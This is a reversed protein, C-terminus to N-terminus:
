RGVSARREIPGGVPPSHPPPSGPPPSGPSPSSPSPSGPPSSGPPTSGPPTSGPPRTGPLGGPGAGRGALRGVAPAAGARGALSAAAIPAAAVAAVGAAMTVGSVVVQGPNLSPQGSMLGAALNPTVWLLIPVLLAVVLHSLLEPWELQGQLGDGMDRLFAEVLTLVFLTTMMKVSLSVVIALAREAIFATPRLVAFPLLVLVLSTLLHFEVTTMFVRIGGIVFGVVIALGTFALMVGIALAKAREGLEWPWPSGANTVSMLIDGFVSFGHGILVSPSLYAQVRAPDGSGAIVGLAAASAHIAGVLADFDRIIWVFVAITAAKRILDAITEQRGFAYLLFLFAIEIVSVYFMLTQVHPLLREYSLDIIATVRALARDFAGPDGAGTASAFAPNTLPGM